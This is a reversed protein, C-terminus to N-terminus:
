VSGSKRNIRKPSPVTGAVVAVATFVVTGALVTRGVPVAVGVIAAEGVFVAEAVLVTSTAPVAVGPLVAV